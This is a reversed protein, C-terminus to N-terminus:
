VNSRILGGDVQLAVGTVYSARESALFVMVNAFEEPTGVRRLPVDAGGRKVYEEQSLGSQKAGGLFRDTLIKGPCVVNITINHQGLEESLTKVMGAVGPRVANSLLLGPVPQKVSVSQITLIRGWNKRQMSPLVGRILRVVFLVTTDFAGYWQEDTMESLNGRPPGGANAVLIDVGGFADEARKILREVDDKKTVDAPMAIVEAGTKARVEEAAAKLDAEGRACMLVRAGEAALGMATAKGMGKSAATVLAAKGRIGLDM